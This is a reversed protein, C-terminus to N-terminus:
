DKYVHTAIQMSNNNRRQTCINVNIYFQITIVDKHVHTAKQTM